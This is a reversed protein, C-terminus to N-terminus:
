FDDGKVSFVIFFIYDEITRKKLKELFREEREQVTIFLASVRDNTELLISAIHSSVM